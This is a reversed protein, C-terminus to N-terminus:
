KEDFNQSKTRRETLKQHSKESNLVDKSNYQMEVDFRKTNHDFKINKDNIIIASAYRQHGNLTRKGYKEIM